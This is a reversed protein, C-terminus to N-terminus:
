AAAPAAATSTLSRGDQPDFLHIRSTDVVAAGDLGARDEDGPEAPRRGPGRQGLGPVEAAGADAALEELEASQAGGGEYGFYAYLESGM